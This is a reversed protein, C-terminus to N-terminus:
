RLHRGGDESKRIPTVTGSAAAPRACFTAWDEMLRQRKEFFDGRQYAAEVKDGKMHALAAEAVEGAYATTDAAWTRFTSRFGHVTVDNRGMRRLLMEMAMNSLPRGERAGPFVWDGAKEDRTPLLKHLVALAAESLPVRHERGAKMRGAPVTWLAESLDFESWKAGLVEGSRAATLITLELARAPLGGRIRLQNMFSGMDRWPLAAHSEVTRVKSPKPLLKAIHGRWLAPNPGSRWGLVTAYDLVSEVRGRLRTATETKTRWIPTLVQMVHATQVEAVPLDGMVPYAYADLTASWQARHKANDWGAEHAEIFLAAVQRFTKTRAQMAQAAAKEAEADADRQVLPDVGAKVLKLLDAAKARADRLTVADRGDARGMGMERMLRGPLRYRFLWYRGGDKDGAAHKLSPPRVLLYLGGGDGYRGPAATRVKVATLPVVMRPM